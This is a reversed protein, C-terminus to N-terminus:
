QNKIYFKLKYFLLYRFKLYLNLFTISIYNHIYTHKISMINQYINNDYNQAQSCQIILIFLYVFLRVRLQSPLENISYKYWAFGGLPPDSGPKTLWM